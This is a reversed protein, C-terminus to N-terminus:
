TPAQYNLQLYFDGITESKLYEFLEFNSFALRWVNLTSREVSFTYGTVNKFESKINELMM